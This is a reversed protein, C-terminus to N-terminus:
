LVEIAKKVKETLFDKDSQLAEFTFTYLDQYSSREKPQYALEDIACESIFRYKYQDFESYNDAMERIEPITTDYPLYVILQMQESNTLIANSILQWFYEPKEDKFNEYGLGCIEV